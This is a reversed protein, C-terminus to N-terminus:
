TMSSTTTTMTTACFSVSLYLIRAALDVERSRDRRLLHLPTLADTVSPSMRAYLSGWFVQVRDPAGFSETRANLRYCGDNQTSWLSSIILVLQMRESITRIIIVLKIHVLWSAHLRIFTLYQPIQTPELYNPSPADQRDGASNICISCWKAQPSASM